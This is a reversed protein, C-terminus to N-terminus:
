CVSAADYYCMLSLRCERAYYGLSHSAPGGLGQVFLAGSFALLGQGQKSPDPQHEHSRSCGGTGRVENSSHAPHCGTANIQFKGSKEGCQFYMVLLPEGKGQANWHGSSSVVSHVM